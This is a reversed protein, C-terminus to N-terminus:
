QVEGFAPSSDMEQGLMDAGPAPAVPIAGKILTALTTAFNLGYAFRNLWPRPDDLAAYAHVEAGLWSRIWEKMRLEKRKRLAWYTELDSLLDVWRIGEACPELSPPDQGTLDCYQLYATDTGARASLPNQLWSRANLEILKFQGDRADKKFEIEGIGSYNTGLLMRAGLDEIIPNKVTRVFSGVGFDTPFQRVKQWICPPAMWGSRSIYTAISYMNSSPGVVFEQVMLPIGTPSAREYGAILEEENNALFGKSGFIRYWDFPYSPKIFAPYQIDDAEGLLEDLSQPYLTKPIPIGLQRAQEYQSRKNVLGEIVNEPPMNFDFRDKLKERNRSILLVHADTTPYLIGRGNSRAHDVLRKLLQEPHKRADPCHLPTAYRSKMGPLDSRADVGVVRIGRRGLSRAVGLGNADMGLVYAIPGSHTWERRM